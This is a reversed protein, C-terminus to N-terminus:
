KGIRPISVVNADESRKSITRIVNICALAYGHAATMGHGSNDMMAMKEFSPDSVVRVKGNDSDEISIVIKAM